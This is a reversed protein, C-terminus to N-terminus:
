WVCFSFGCLIMIFVVYFDAEGPVGDKAYDDITQFQRFANARLVISFLENMRFGLLSLMQYLICIFIKKLWSLFSEIVRFHLTTWIIFHGKSGKKKKEIM